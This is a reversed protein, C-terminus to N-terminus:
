DSCWTAPPSDLHEVLNNSTETLRVTIVGTAQDVYESV